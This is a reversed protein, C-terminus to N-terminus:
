VSGSRCSIEAKGCQLHISVGLLALSSLAMFFQGLFWGLCLVARLFVGCGCFDGASIRGVQGLLLQEQGHSPTVIPFLMM